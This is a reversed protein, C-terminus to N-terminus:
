KEEEILMMGTNFDTILVNITGTRMAGLVAEKKEPGGAVAAVRPINRIQEAELGIIKENLPHDLFKGEKNFFRLSIDGLAGQKKIGELDEKSLISGKSMLISDPAATGIGIFAVQSSAAFRLTENIHTDQMLADRVEKSMVVGPAPLIRGSAGTKVSFRRILDSSHMESEPSGLGGLMQIIKLNQIEINPLNQIFSALSSGWTISINDGKQIIRQAYEACKTGLLTLQESPDAVSPVLLIENLGWKRAILDEERAFDQIPMNISINVIGEIKAQHLLRSVKIRSIGLLQAIAQQTQNQEFYLTCVKYILNIERM